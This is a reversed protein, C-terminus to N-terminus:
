VMVEVVLVALALRVAVLGVAVVAQMAHPAQVKVVFLRRMLDSVVMAALLHHLMVVLLVAAVEVVPLPKPIRLLTKDVTIAKVL